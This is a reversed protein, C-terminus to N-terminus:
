FDGRGVTKESKTVWALAQSLWQKIHRSLTVFVVVSDNSDVVCQCLQPMVYSTSESNLKVNIEGWNFTSKQGGLNLFQSM